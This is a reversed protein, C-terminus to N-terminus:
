ALDLQRNRKANRILQLAMKRDTSDIVHLTPNVLDGCALGPEHFRRMDKSKIYVKIGNAELYSKVKM